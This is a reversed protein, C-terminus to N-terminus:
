PEFEDGRPCVGHRERGLEGELATLVDSLHRSRPAFERDDLLLNPLENLGDLIHGCSRRRGEGSGLPTVDPHRPPMNSLNVDMVGRQLPQEGRVKGILRQGPHSQTYMLFFPRWSAFFLRIILASGASFVTKPPLDLTLMNLTVM